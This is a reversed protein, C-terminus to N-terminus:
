IVLDQLLDQEQMVVESLEQIELNVQNLLVVVRLSAQGRAEAVEVQDVLDEPMEQLLEVLVAVEPL